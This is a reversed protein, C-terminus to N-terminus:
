RSRDPPRVERIVQQVEETCGRRDMDEVMEPLMKELYPKEGTVMQWLLVGLSFVDIQM